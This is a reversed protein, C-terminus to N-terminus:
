KKAAHLAALKAKISDDIAKLEEDTPDRGEAQMAKLEDRATTFQAVLGPIRSAALLLSDLLQIILLISM